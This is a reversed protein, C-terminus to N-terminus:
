LSHVTYKPDISEIEKTWHQLDFHEDHEIMVTKAAVDVTVTTISPFDNSVDTILAACSACHIGPISVTTQMPSFASSSNSVKGLSM